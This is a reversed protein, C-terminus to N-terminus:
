LLGHSKAHLFSLPPLVSPPPCLPFSLPPLVSPCLPIPSLSLPDYMPRKHQDLTETAIFYVKISCPELADFKFHVKYMAVDHGEEGDRVFVVSDKHLNVMSKITTAHHIPPPPAFRGFPFYASLDNRITGFLNDGELVGRRPALSIIFNGPRNGNVNNNNNNNNTTNTNIANSSNNDNLNQQQQNPSPVNSAVAVSNLPEQQSSYPVAASNGMSGRFNHNGVACSFIATRRDRLIFNWRCPYALRNAQGRM